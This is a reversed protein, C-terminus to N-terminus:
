SDLERKVAVTWVSSPRGTTNTSVRSPSRQRRDSTRKGAAQITRRRFTGRRQLYRRGRPLAAESIPVHGQRSRDPRRFELMLGRPQGVSELVQM